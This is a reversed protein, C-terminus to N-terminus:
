LSQGEIYEDLTISQPNESIQAVYDYAFSVIDIIKDCVVSIDQICTIQEPHPLYMSYRHYIHNMPTYVGFNGLTFKASLENLKVLVESTNSNDFGFVITTYIQLFKDNGLAEDELFILEMLVAVDDKGQIPVAVRLDNPKLVVDYVESFVKELNELVEIRNEM